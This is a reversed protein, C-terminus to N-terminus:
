QNLLNKKTKHRKILQFVIISLSIVLISAGILIACNLFFQQPLINIVEMDYPDFMWNDKGPFFIHHFVTFAKSFGAIGVLAVIVFIVLFISIASIFSVSLGFPRVLTIVKKKQLILTTIIIISSIILATANIDFLIKCDVFHDKGAENFKFVGTGFEQNPLVLFNMVEDFAQKITEYSEGTFLPLNLPEIQAYYFPRFYIPLGISFAIIFFFVGIGFIITAIKNKM